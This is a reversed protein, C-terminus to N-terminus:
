QALSISSQVGPWFRGIDYCISQAYKHEAVTLTKSAFAVPRLENDSVQYFSAGIGISSANASIIVPKAIDYFALVTATTLVAKVKCFADAQPQDWSKVTDSKSCCVQLQSCLPLYTLYM